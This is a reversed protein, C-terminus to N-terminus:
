RAKSEYRNKLGILKAHLWASSLFLWFTVAALFVFAIVNWPFKLPVMSIIAGEIAVAFGLVIYIYTWSQPGRIVKADVTIKSDM